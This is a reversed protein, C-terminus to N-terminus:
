KELFYFVSFLFLLFLSRSVFRSIPSNPLSAARGMPQSPKIPIPRSISPTPFGGGGSGSSGGSGLGRAFTPPPHVVYSPVNVGRLQPSAQSRSTVSLYNNKWLDRQTTLFHSSLPVRVFVHFHVFVNAVSQM